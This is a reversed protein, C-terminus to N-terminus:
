WGCVGRKPGKGAVCGGRKERVRWVSGKQAGEWGWGGRKPGMGAVKGGREM